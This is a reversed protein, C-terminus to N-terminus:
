LPWFVPIMLSGLVWVVLNLPAGVRLYDAVRYNGPGYVMLHTQYGMPLMFIASSAYAVAFLFPRPNVALNAALSLAIPTMLAACANNSMVETLLMTVLYFGALVAHPGLPGVWDVLAAAILAAAGSKEMALELPLLGALLLIVKWDIADYAETLTLCGSLVVAIAGLTAAVLISCLGATAAAVLAIVIALAVLSRRRRLRPQAGTIVILEPEESLSELRGLPGQLLLTDGLSLRIRGIAGRLSSSGRRVALVVVQFRREFDAEEITAGLLASTPALSVEAIGIRESGSGEELRLDPHVALAGSNQILVLDSAGARLLVLDGPLFKERELPPVIRRTGRVIERVEVSPGWILAGEAVSRGVLPSGEVVVAESLVEHLAYAATLDSSGRDPLLRRGILMLYLLGVAVQMLGLPAFEFMGFPREGAKTILSSVLINTSTGILTCTGGLVSAYSLPILLKSPALGHARAFGIVMPLFIAVAATNNIFASIAATTLVILLLLRLPHNGAFRLVFRGLFDVGGTKQLSASLVFMAAVTLTADNSFGSIAEPLTLLGTLLLSALVVLAVLEVPLVETIFLVLALALIGLTLAIAM